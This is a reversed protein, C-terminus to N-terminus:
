TTYVFNGIRHWIANFSPFDGYAPNPDVLKGEPFANGYKHRVIKTLFNPSTYYVPMIQMRGPNQPDPKLQKSAHIIMKCMGPLKVASEGRIYPDVAVTSSGGGQGDAAKIEKELSIWIVNLSTKHLKMALDRIHMALVGWDRMTMNTAEGGDREIRQKIKPDKYRLEMLQAIWMDVYFTISDFVVTNIDMAIYNRCIQEVKKVMMDPSTIPYVPPVPLNYLNPLMALADDGGEPGVSLFLPKPFTGAFTTKWTGVSGFLFITVGQKVQGQGPYYIDPDHYQTAGAPLGAMTQPAPAVSAMAPQGAPNLIDQAPVQGQPAPQQPAPQQALQQAPPQGNAQGQDM